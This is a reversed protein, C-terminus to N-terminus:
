RATVKEELVRTEGEYTLVFERISPARKWSNARFLIPDFAGPRYVHEFRAEFREGFRRVRHPFGGVEGEEWLWLGDTTEPDATFPAREDIRVLCQVGVTADEQDERWGFRDFWVPGDAMSVQCFASEPDDAQPFYRDWYRFPFYIAVSGSSASAPNTGYRGRFMGQSSRRGQDPDFFRPMGLEVDGRTWTYHLLETGLLVTGGGRPLGGLSQVAITDDQNSLSNTLIAAPIHELFQVVAGEDHARVVTNLLGRGEPAIRVEGSQPDYQDYALIEGDIALLGGQRPFSEDGWNDAQRPRLNVLPGAPTLIVNPRVFFSNANETLQQDLPRPQARRAVYTVEDLLGRSPAGDAHVPAGFWAEDPDGAPLEGSPFKVMRDLFRTDLRNEEGRSSTGEGIFIGSRIPAQFAVLQFPWDGRRQRPEVRNQTGSADAQVQDWEYHRVSWNVTHWEVGPVEGDQRASGPILAVRDGRGARPTGLGYGPWDFEFRHVPLVQANAPQPHSSTGTFPDGRFGLARRAEHIAPYRIEIPDIYGIRRRGDDTPPAWPDRLLTVQNPDLGGTTVGLQQLSTQQTLRFRVLEFAAQDARVAHQRDMIANYRVWETDADDGGETRIQLWNIFEPDDDLTGNFPVSIPVVFLMYLPLEDFPVVEGANPDRVVMTESWDVVFNRPQQPVFFGNQDTVFNVPLQVARQINKLTTGTRSAYRIVEVGGIEPTTALQGPNNSVLRISLRRQVLIAYGGSQPFGAAIQEDAPPPVSGGVIVEPNGLDIDGTWAEDFGEGILIPNRNAVDITIPNIGARNVARAISFAGLSDTLRAGGPILIRRPYVPIAYGYLEVASGSPHNPVVAELDGNVIALLDQRPDGEGNEPVNIAFERMTARARRGGVSDDYRCYFAGDDRASYEFLEGGIRLVGRQPFDSADEVQITIFRDSDALFTPVGRDEQYVPIEATTYTRMRPEGRPVGDVVFSLQGPRNGVASATIHYWTGQVLDLSELPAQWIASSPNPAYPSAAADPDLGADDRVEYTLMGDRIEVLYRNREPAEGVSAEDYLVQPGTDDLRLWFSVAHRSSVGGITTMPFSVRSHDRQGSPESVGAMRPGVNSARYPGETALVRGEPHRATMFADHGVLNGGYGIPAVGPQPRLEAETGSRDAFRPEGFGANPFLTALLHASTRLPPVMDQQGNPVASTNIPWTQWFPTRRDLRFAEDLAEQTAGGWFLQDGPLALAVGERERRAAELGSFRRRSASARYGVLPSSRFAVPMTGQEMSGPCGIQLADYVGLVLRRQDMSDSAGAGLIMPVFRQALDEFGDFPRPTMDVNGFGSPRNEDRDFAEVLEADDGRLMTMQTALNAADRRRIVPPLRTAGDERNAGSVQRRAHAFLATLVEPAATNINVPVQVLPEVVTDVPVFPMSLPQLLAVYQRSSLNYTGRNGRGITDWVLGYEVWQGDLSRIRVVRGPGLGLNSKVQLIRPQQLEDSLIEFVREGKGFRASRDHLAVTTTFRALAEIERAEFGPFGGEQIRQLEAVSGYPVYRGPDGYGRFPWTVALVCRFDMVLADEDLKHDPLLQAPLFGLEAFAGRTLGFFRSGDRGEYRIVERQCILYGSEPFADLPGDVPIEAADLEVEGRVRVALGLLNALVLPTASHLDIRRSLDEVSGQLVTRGGPTSTIGEFGAPLELTGPYEDRGDANPSPDFASAGSAATQLLADRASASGWDAHVEDVRARSAADGHGMSLLFPAAMALLVGLAVLVAVLALGSEAARRQM